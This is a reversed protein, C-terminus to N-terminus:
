VGAFAGGAAIAMVVTVTFMAAAAATCALLLSVTDAIGDLMKVIREDSFPELVAAAIRFALMGCLLELAPKLLMGAIILLAATGVGNKLLLSASRVADVAGTVMGGVAPILRDVAYKASRLAASDANAAAIGGAVACASYVTTLLGLLWKVSKHLLKIWRELKLSETLGNLVTLVGSALLMPMAASRIVAAAGGATLALRPTLLKASVPYGMATLLAGLTPAATEAFGATDGVAAAAKGALSSFAATASFIAAGCLFLLVLKKIGADDFVVGCFGAALAAACVGTMGALAKRLGPLFAGHLLGFLSTEANAGGQTLSGALERVSRYPAAEPSLRRLEDYYRQWGTFEAEDLLRMLETRVAEEDTQGDEQKGQTKACFVPLALLLVATVAAAILASRKFIKRM